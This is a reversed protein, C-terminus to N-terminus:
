KIRKSIKNLIFKLITNKIDHNARIISNNEDNKPNFFNM